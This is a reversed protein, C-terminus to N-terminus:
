AIEIIARELEEPLAGRDGRTVAAAARKGPEGAIIASPHRQQFFLVGSGTFTVVIM